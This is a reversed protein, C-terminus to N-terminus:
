RRTMRVRAAPREAVQDPQSEWTRHATELVGLTAVYRLLLTCVAVGFRLM